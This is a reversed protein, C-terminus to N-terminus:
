RVQATDSSRVPRTRTSRSSSTAEWTSRNSRPAVWNCITASWRFAATARTSWRSAATASAAPSTATSAAAGMAGLVDDDDGGLELVSGGGDSPPKATVPKDSLSVPDDPLILDQAGAPLVDSDLSIGSEEASPMDLDLSDLDDFKRKCVAPPLRRRTPRPIWGCTAGWRCISTRVGRIPSPFRLTFTM